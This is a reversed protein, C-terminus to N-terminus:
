LLSIRQSAPAVQTCPSLNGDGPDIESRLIGNETALYLFNNRHDCVLHRAETFPQTCLLNPMPHLEGPESQIRFRHISGPAAVFLTQSATHIALPGLFNGQIMQSQLSLHANVPNHRITLLSGTAADIAFLLDTDAHLALHTLRRNEPFSLRSLVPLEHQVSLVSVTATGQDLAFIRDGASNFVIYSPRSSLTSSLGTEKRIAIPRGPRGDKLIPLLNYAAGGHVAVALAKGDPSFAMHRPRIASLSLPQTSLPELHGSDKDIRFSEIYGCPLGRHESVAHLVHLTRTSPDTVLSIPAESPIIQILAWATEQTAYTRIEHVSAAFAFGQTFRTPKLVASARAALATAGAAAIFHRRSIHTVSPKM